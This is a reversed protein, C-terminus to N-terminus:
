RFRVRCVDWRGAPWRKGVIAVSEKVDHSADLPRGAVVSRTKLGPRIEAGTVRVRLDLLDPPRLLRATVIDQRHPPPM